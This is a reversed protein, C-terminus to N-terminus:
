RPFFANLWQAALTKFLEPQDIPLNHGAGELALYTAAPYIKLWRFQDEYGVSADQKGTLILTPNPYPRANPCNSLSFRGDLIHDLYASGACNQIAPYLDRAYRAWADPTLRVNMQCFASREADSLTQLFAEDRQFDRKEPLTRHEDRGVPCLLIMGKCSEPMQHAVARAVSGGFSNGAILFPKGRLETRVFDLICEAADYTTRVEGATSLGMGPLDFYIRQFTARTNLFVPEMCGTLCRHDIGWGHLMLMPTGTGRTEFYIRAGRSLFISM